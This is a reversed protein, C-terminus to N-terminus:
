KSQLVAKQLLDVLPSLSIKIADNLPEAFGPENSLYDAYIVGYPHDQDGIPIVIFQRGNSLLPEGLTEVSGDLIARLVPSSEYEMFELEFRMDQPEKGFSKGLSMRGVLSDDATDLVMLIVRDFSHGFALAEMATTIISSLTERNTIATRIDDLYFRFSNKSGPAPSSGVPHAEPENPTSKITFLDTLIQPCQLFEMDILKIHQQFAEPLAAVVDILQAESLLSHESLATLGARFKEVTHSEIALEALKAAAALLNAPSHVDRVDPNKEVTYYQIGEALIQKYVSPISLKDIIALSLGVPSEGILETLSRSTTIGRTSARDEASEVIQPFYFALLLPGLEFFTGALYGQESSEGKGFRKMLITSGMSCLICRKVQDAFVGGKQATPGFKQMLVFGSCLDCLAKMGLQMVAQSVTVIPVSRQYVVSNVVHLIRTGLSPDTLITEAIQEVPTNPDNVLRRLESVAKARVPFDGDKRMARELRVVINKAAGSSDHITDPRM